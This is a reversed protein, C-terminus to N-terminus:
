PSSGGAAERNRVRDPFALRQGQNALADHLGILLANEGIGDAANNVSTTVPAPYVNAALEVRMQQQLALSFALAPKELQAFGIKAAAHRSLACPLISLCGAGLEPHGMTYNIFERIVSAPDQKNFKPLFPSPDNLAIEAGAAVAQAFPILQSATIVREGDLLLLIPLQSVEAGVALAKGADMAESYHLLVPRVPHQRIFQVAGEEMGSAVVIVEAISLKAIENLWEAIPQQSGALAIIAATDNQWGDQGATQRRISLLRGRRRLKGAAMVSSPVSRRRFRARGQRTGRRFSKTRRGRLGKM